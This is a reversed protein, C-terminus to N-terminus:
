ARFNLTSRPTHRLSLQRTWVVEAGLATFGSMAAAFYILPRSEGSDSPAPASAPADESTRAAMMWFAAAIIVNITVAVITAIVTDYVRLLYFGAIM